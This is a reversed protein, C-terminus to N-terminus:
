GTSSVRDSGSPPTRVKVSGGVATFFPTTKPANKGPPDGVTVPLKDRSPLHDAM